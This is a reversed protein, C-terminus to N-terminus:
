RSSNGDGHSLMWGYNFRADANGQDVALKFYHAALSKDRPIGVGEFLM